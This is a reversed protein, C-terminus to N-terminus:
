RQRRPDVLRLLANRVDLLPEPDVHGALHEAGVLGLLDLLGALTTPPTTPRYTDCGDRTQRRRVAAARGSQRGLDLRDLREHVLEAHVLHDADGPQELLSGILRGVRPMPKVPKSM